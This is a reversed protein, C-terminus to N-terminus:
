EKIKEEKETVKKELKKKADAAYKLQRDSNEM